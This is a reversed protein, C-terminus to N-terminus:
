YCPLFYRTLNFDSDLKITTPGLDDKKVASLIKINDTLYDKLVETFSYNVSIYQIFTITDSSTITISNNTKISKKRAM